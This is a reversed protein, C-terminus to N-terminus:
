RRGDDGVRHADALHPLAPADALAVSIFSRTTSRCRPRAAPNPGWRRATSAGPVVGVVRRGRLAVAQHLEPDVGLHESEAAEAGLRLALLAHGSGLARDELEQLSAHEASTASSTTSRIPGAPVDEGLGVGVLLDVLAFGAAVVRHQREAARLRRGDGAAGGCIWIFMM